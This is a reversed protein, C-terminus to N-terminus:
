ELLKLVVNIHEILSRAIEQIKKFAIQYVCKIVFIFKELICPMILLIALEFHGSHMQLM